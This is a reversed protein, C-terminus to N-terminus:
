CPSTRFTGGADAIRFLYATALAHPAVGVVSNDTMQGRIGKFPGRGNVLPGFGGFRLARQGPAGSLTLNFTRGELGDADFAGLPRGDVGTIAYENRSTFPIPAVATGPAGPNLLNFSILARMTGVVPGLQNTCRLDGSPGPGCDTTFLRLQQEVDLGVVAGDKMIYGSRSQPGKKHGAILVYTANSEPSDGSCHGSLPGEAAFAELPDMVRLLLSGRYGSPSLTGCYTYTGDRGRFRGDGDVITGVAAAAVMEGSGLPATLGTGFGRFCDTDGTLVFVSDLMVFRQARSPDFACPPPEVGPRAVFTDPAILWRHSFRAVPEGVANSVRLVNRASPMEMRIAFRCLEEVIQFGRLRRGNNTVLPTCHASTSYLTFFAAQDLLQQVVAFPYTEANIDPVADAM